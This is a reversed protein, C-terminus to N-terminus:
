DMCGAKAVARLADDRAELRTDITDAIDIVVV